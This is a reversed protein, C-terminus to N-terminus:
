ASQNLSSLVKNWIEEIKKSIEHNPYHEIVTKGTVMAETVMPDFPIKGVVDIGKRKCTEIIKETNEENINYMNICVLSFVGFHEAVGLIRELDHLGSATPETVVVVLDVGTLSAIVPCGIGPPGDILILSRSENEAIQKADKRVLTVLKGSNEEAIGLRAHAMPGFRTKSIFAQGCVKEKLSIASTPCIYACVGCGECFNLNVTLEKIANFRCAEECKGCKTCALEDIMPIRSGRFEHKAITKPELLLHLDAADVDCDAVVANKALAAFSATLTTKGTGGKGSVIAIQKM